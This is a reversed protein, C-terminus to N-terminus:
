INSNKKKLLYFFQFLFILLILIYIINTFLDDWSYFDFYIPEKSKKGLFFPLFGLFLLNIIGIVRWDTFVEKGKKKFYNKIRRLKKREEKNENNVYGRFMALLLGAILGVFGFLVLSLKINKNSPGLPIQPSDLIKFVSGKQVEEIKALELQQKLTLYIGKQIDTERMLREQELMLAPSSIQRNKENFEKLDKESIKLDDEVSLIRNVIFDIKENVAQSKYYRNLKELEVLITDLLHKAFIPENTTVEIISFDKSSFQDLQVMRKFSSTGQAILIERNKKSQPNVGTLIELLSLKKDHKETFFEKDLMKKAFTRSSLLEPFLSPSSLDSQTTTPFNVGFQSAIGAFGGFNNNTSSNPLLITARSIFLPKQIYQVHTFGSFLFVFCVIFIVKLQQSILLLFKSLVPIKEDTNSTEEFVSIYPNNPINYSRPSSLKKIKDVIHYPVQDRSKWNSVAQPTTNLARAIKALNNFGHENMISELENFNM